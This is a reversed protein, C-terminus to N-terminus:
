APLHLTLYTIDKVYSKDSFPTSVLYFDVHKEASKRDPFPATISWKGYQRYAVSTWEVTGEPPGNMQVASQIADLAADLNRPHPMGEAAIETLITALEERTDDTFTFM